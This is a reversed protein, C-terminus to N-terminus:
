KRKIKMKAQRLVNQFKSMDELSIMNLMNTSYFFDNKNPNGNEDIDLVIRPLEYSVVVSVRGTEQNDVVRTEKIKFHVHSLLEKIQALEASDKRLNQIEKSELHTTLHKVQEEISNLQKTRKTQM